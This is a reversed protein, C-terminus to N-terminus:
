VNSWRSHEGSNEGDRIVIHTTKVIGGSKDVTEENVGEQSRTLSRAIAGGVVHVEAPGVSDGRWDFTEMGFAISREEDFGTRNRTKSSTM